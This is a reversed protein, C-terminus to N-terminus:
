QSQENKTEVEVHSMVHAGHVGLTTATLQVLLYCAVRIRLHHHVHVEEM